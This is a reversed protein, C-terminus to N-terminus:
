PSLTPHKKRPSPDNKPTHPAGIGQALGSLAGPVAFSFSLMAGSEPARHKKSMLMPPSVPTGEYALVLRSSRARYGGIKSLIYCSTPSDGQRCPMRINYDKRACPCPRQCDPSASKQSSAWGGVYRWMHVQPPTTAPTCLEVFSISCFSM